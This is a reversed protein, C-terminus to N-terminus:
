ELFIKLRLIKALFVKWETTLNMQNKTDIDNYLISLGFM